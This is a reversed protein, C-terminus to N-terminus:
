FAILHRALPIVLLEYGSHRLRLTDLSLLANCVLHAAPVSRHSSRVLRLLGPLVGNRSDRTWWPALKSLGQRGSWSGAILDRCQALSSSRDDIVLVLHLHLEPFDTNCWLVDNDLTSTSHTNLRSRTCGASGYRLYRCRSSELLLVTDRGLCSISLILCLRM